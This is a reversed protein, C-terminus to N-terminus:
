SCVLFFSIAPDRIELIKEFPVAMWFSYKLDLRVAESDFLCSAHIFLSFIYHPYLLIKTMFFDLSCLRVDLDAWLILCIFVRFSFYTTRVTIM